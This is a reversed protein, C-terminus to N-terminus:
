TRTATMMAAKAQRAAARVQARWLQSGSLSRGEIVQAARPEPEPSTKIWIVSARLHLGALYYANLLSTESLASYAEAFSDYDNVRAAPASQAHSEATTM